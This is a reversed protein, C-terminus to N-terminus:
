HVVVLKVPKVAVGKEEVFVLYVGQDFDATNVTIKNTLQSIEETKVLQGAQSYIKLTGDSIAKSMSIFVQENAPNPITKVDFAFENM